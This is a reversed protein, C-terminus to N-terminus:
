RFDIGILEVNPTCPDRCSFCFVFSLATQLVDLGIMSGVDMQRGGVNMPIHAGVLLPNNEIRDFM